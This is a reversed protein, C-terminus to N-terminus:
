CGIGSPGCSANSHCPPGQLFPSSAQARVKDSITKGALLSVFDLMLRGKSAAMDIPLNVLPTKLGGVATMWAAIASSGKQPGICALGPEPLALQSAEVNIGPAQAPQRTWTLKQSNMQMIVLAIPVGAVVATPATIAM